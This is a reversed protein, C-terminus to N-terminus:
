ISAMIAYIKQIDASNVKGDGNVDAEPHNNGDANQAMLQYVKQVDASNVNGDGNVDGLLSAGSLTLYGPNNTGGDAHAYAKDVHAANYTTGKGGVLSTCGGFMNTSNTVLNTNWKSGCYITKLNSCNYFM